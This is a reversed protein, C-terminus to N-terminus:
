TKERRAWRSSSISAQSNDIGVPILGETGLQHPQYGETLKYVKIEGGQSGYLEKIRQYLEADTLHCVSSGTVIAKKGKKLWVKHEYLTNYNVGLAAAMIKAQRYKALAANFAAITPYLLRLMARDQGAPMHDGGNEKGEGEVITRSQTRGANQIEWEL